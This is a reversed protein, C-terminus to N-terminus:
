RFEFAKAAVKDVMANSLLVPYQAHKDFTLERKAAAVKNVGHEHAMSMGIVACVEVRQKSGPMQALIWRRREWDERQRTRGGRHETQVPLHEDLVVNQV